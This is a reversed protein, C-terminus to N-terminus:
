KHWSPVIGLLSDTYYNNLIIQIIDRMKEVNVVKPQTVTEPGAVHSRIGRRVANIHKPEWKIPNKKFQLFMSNVEVEKSKEQRMIKQLEQFVEERLMTIRDNDSKVQSYIALAIVTNESQSNQGKPFSCGNAVIIMVGVVILDMIARNSIKIKPM